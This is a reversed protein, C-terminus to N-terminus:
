GAAYMAIRRRELEGGDVAFQAVDFEASDLGVSRTTIRIPLADRVAYREAERGTGVVIWRAGQVPEIWGFGVREGAADRCTLSLRPDVLEGRRVPGVIGACWRGASLTGDCGILAPGARMTLSRGLRGVREIATRPLVGTWRVLRLCARAAPVRATVSHVGTQAPESARAGCCGLVLLAVTLAPAAIAVNRACGGILQGV